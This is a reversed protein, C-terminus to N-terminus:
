VGIRPMNVTRQNIETRSLAGRKWVRDVEGIEVAVADMIEAIDAHEDRPEQVAIGASIECRGGIRQVERINLLKQRTKQVLAQCAVM